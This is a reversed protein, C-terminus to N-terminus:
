TRVPRASAVDDVVQIVNVLNSILAGYVPWLLGPLDEGSLDRTLADAREQLPAVELDPDAVRRGAEALLEVWPDRFRPDWEHASRTSEHVTRAMSRTQAIGEELRHLVEQFKAPDGGSALRRRPNWWTSEHAHRVLEWARELDGDLERTREIWSDSREASWDARMDAAMESLIAGLKEDIRDVQQQASRNNLPPYILLNVLVGVAVGIATDLFRDLLMSEQQEYGTTLVFLATTAVTVGEDQLVGARALLLGLLLAVGLGAAGPGVLEAVLYSLVIGLVTALVSQAGRAFTRYVTAHVTLLAAWPALFPQKLDFVQVALLWAAVAALVAKAVQLLSTQTSPDRLSSLARAAAATLRALDFPRSAM